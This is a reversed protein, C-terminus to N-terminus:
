PLFFLLPGSVFPFPAVPRCRLAARRTRLNCRLRRLLRQVRRVRRQLLVPRRGSGTRQSRRLWDELLAHCDSEVTAAASASIAAAATGAAASRAAKPAPQVDGRHRWPRQRQPQKRTRGRRLSRPVGGCLLLLACASVQRHLAIWKVSWCTRDADRRVPQHHGEQQHHHHRRRGQDARHRAMLAFRETRAYKVLGRRRATPVPPLNHHFKCTSPHLHSRRAAFRALM